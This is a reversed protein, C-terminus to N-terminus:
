DPSSGKKKVQSAAHGYAEPPIIEYDKNGVSLNARANFSNTNSSM